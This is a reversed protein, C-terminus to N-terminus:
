YKSVYEKNRMLIRDSIYSAYIKNTETDFISITWVPQLIAGISFKRIENESLYSYTSYGIRNWMTIFMESQNVGEVQFLQSFLNMEDIDYGDSSLNTFDLNLSDQRLGSFKPKESVVSVDAYLHSIKINYRNNPNHLVKSTLEIGTPITYLYNGIRTKPIKYSMQLKIVEDNVIVDHQRDIGFLEANDSTDDNADNTSTTTNDNSVDTSIVDTDVNDSQTTTSSIDTVFSSNERVVEAEGNDSEYKPYYCSTLIFVSSCLILLTKIKM